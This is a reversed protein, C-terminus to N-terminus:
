LTIVWWVAERARPYCTAGPLTLCTVVGKVVWGSWGLVEYADAGPGQGSLM